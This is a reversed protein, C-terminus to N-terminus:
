INIENYLKAALQVLPLFSYVGNDSYKFQIVPHIRISKNIM